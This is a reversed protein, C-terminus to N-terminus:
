ESQCIIKLKISASDANVIDVKHGENLLGPVVMEEPEGKDISIYIIENFSLKEIALKCRIFNLPCSVGRLDIYNDKILDQSM